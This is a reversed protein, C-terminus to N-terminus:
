KLSQQITLYPPGTRLLRAIWLDASRAPAATTTTLASAPQPLPPPWPVGTGACAGACDFAADRGTCSGGAVNAVPRETGNGPSVTSPRRVTPPVNFEGSGM